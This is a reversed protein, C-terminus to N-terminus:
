CIAASMVVHLYPETKASDTVKKYHGGQTAYASM